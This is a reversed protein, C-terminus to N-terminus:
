RRSAGSTLEAAALRHGHCVAIALADAAHDPSPTEEMGLISRVMLQVQIKSAQGNGVVAKKVAAPSYEFVPISRRCAALLVVGRAEGLKITSKVNKAYFVDELAVCDPRRRDLIEDVGEFISLLRPALDHGRAAVTGFDEARLTGLTSRVLGYGVFRTGPDIGLIKV